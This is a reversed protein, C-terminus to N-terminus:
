LLVEAESLGWEQEEIRILRAPKIQEVTSNQTLSYCKQM